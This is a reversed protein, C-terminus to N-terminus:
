VVEDATASLEAVHINFAPDYSRMQARFQFGRARAEAQDLRRWASWTPSGSPNDQTDRVEVWADAEGGVVGDFDGWEDLASARADVQDLQNVVSALLRSAVRVSRVSGLDMGGSFAYSGSAAVGGLGDLDAIAGFDAAGDIDGGSGLRLTGTNVVTNTRTGTFTAHETLTSVAAWSLATAATSAILADGSTRGGADFARILYTGPKSPLLAFAAAGTVAEGISTADAWTAGSAMPTHRIEFRGGVRVDLEPHPDWRLFAMGGITQLGLRTVAAPAAAALGGVTVALNAWSGTAVASRARVRIEWAGDALDDIHSAAEGLTGPARLWDGGAPRYQVDYGQVFPYPPPAWSLALRTRLGVGDRTAYLEEAAALGAPAPVSFPNVLNTDAPLAPVTADGHSWAYAAASEERLRLTIIGKDFSWAIIRMPASALGLDPITVSLMQWVAYRLGRYQVPAEITLAERGRLLEIRALQQARIANTTFPLELERWIREGDEAEYAPSLVGPFEAAQWSKAPDVFTGKVANFLDRRPPRTTVRVDGALESIGLTDTPASYAGGHLRYRGQVYVLAGAGASLLRSLVERRTADVTFTGGVAFRTQTSADALTLREDSLNAAAMFSATDIEDDACAMGFPARLYDLVCLAWNESYETRSYRPDWIDARGRVVAGISQLGGAFADEAYEMRMYIYACGLLRHEASWGDTSEAVLDPDAETQDGLHIRLRVRGAYVGAASGFAFGDAGIASIPISQDNIWIQDVGAIRHCALVSVMHLYRNDEGSSSAYVLVGGVRAQGYVVQRPAVPARISQKRDQAQSSLDPAAAKKKNTVAGMLMSAGAAIVTGIVGAVAALAFSGAALTVGLVFANTLVTTAAALAVAGIIAPIAPPM